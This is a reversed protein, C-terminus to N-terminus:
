KYDHLEHGALHKYSLEQPRVETEVDEFRARKGSFEVTLSMPVRNDASLPQRLGAM